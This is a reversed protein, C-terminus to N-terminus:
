LSAGNKQEMEIEIEPVEDEDIRLVLTPPSSPELSVMPDQDSQAYIRPRPPPIKADTPSKGTRSGGIKAGLYGISIAALALTGIWVWSPLALGAAAPRLLTIQSRALTEGALNQAEFILPLDQGPEPMIVEGLWDSGTYRVRQLIQGSDPDSVVIVATDAPNAVHVALRTNQADIAFGDPSTVILTVPIDIAPRALTIQAPAHPQGDRGIAVIQVTQTDGPQPMELRLAAQGQTLAGEGLISGNTGNGADRAVIKEIWDAGSSVQIQATVSETDAEFMGTPQVQMRIATRAISLRDEAIMEGAPDFALVAFTMTESPPPLPHTTDWIRDSIGTRALEAMDPGGRIVLATAAGPTELVVRLRVTGADVTNGAPSQLTLSTPLVPAPGNFTVTQQALADGNRDLAVFTVRQSMGPEPSQLSLITATGAYEQNVPNTNPLRAEIRAVASAGRTVTVTFDTRSRSAAITGSPQVSLIAPPRVLRLAATDLVNGDPGLALVRYATDQGPQPMPMDFILPQGRWPQTQTDFDDAGAISVFETLGPQAFSIRANIRDNDAEIPSPVDLEVPQAALCARALEQELTVWRIRGADFSSMRNGLYGGIARCTNPGLAGDTAGASIGVCALNEQVDQVLSQGVVESPGCWPLLRLAVRANASRNATNTAVMTAIQDDFNRPLGVTASFTSGDQAVAMQLRTGNAMEIYAERIGSQRDTITASVRITRGTGEFVRELPVIDPPTQDVVLEGNPNVDDQTTTGVDDSSGSNSSLRNNLQALDFNAGVFVDCDGSSLAVVTERATVVSPRLGENQLQRALSPSSTCTSLSALFARVDRPQTLMTLLFAGAMFQRADVVYLSSYGPIPEGGRPADSSTQSRAQSIPLVVLCFALILATFTHM